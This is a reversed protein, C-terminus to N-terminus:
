SCCGSVVCRAVEETRVDVRSVPDRDRFTGSRSPSSRPSARPVHSPDDRGLGRADPPGSPPPAIRARVIRTVTSRSAATAHVVRSSRRPVASPGAPGRISSTRTRPASSPVIVTPEDDPTTSDAPRRWSAAGSPEVKYEVTILSPDVVSSARSEAVPSTTERVFIRPRSSTRTADNVPRATARIAGSGGPRSPVYASGRARVEM